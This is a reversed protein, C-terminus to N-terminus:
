RENTRDRRQAQFKSQPHGGLANLTGFMKRHHAFRAARLRLAIQQAMWFWQGRKIEGGGTARLM